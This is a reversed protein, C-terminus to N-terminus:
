STIVAADRSIALKWYSHYHITSKYSFSFILCLFNYLQLSFKSHKFFSSLYGSYYFRENKYLNNNIFELPMEHVPEDHGLMFKGNIFWVDIEVDYGLKIAQEIYAPENEYSEFKGNINGRHSILTM